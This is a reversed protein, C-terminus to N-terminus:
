LEAAQPKCGWVSVPHTGWCKPQLDTFPHKCILQVVHNTDVRLAVPVRDRDNLDDAASHDELRGDTRVALPVCLRQLEDILAGCTSARERDLPGTRETGTQRAEQTATTLLHELDAPQPPLAARAALGVREVSDPRGPTDSLRHIRGSPPQPMSPWPFVPASM